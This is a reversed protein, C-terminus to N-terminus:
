FRALPHALIVHRSGSPNYGRQQLGVALGVVVGVVVAGVVSGVVPWFGKSKRFDRWGERSRMWLSRTPKKLPEPVKGDLRVGSFLLRVAPNVKEKPFDVSPKVTIPGKLLKKLRADYLYLTLVGQDHEARARALVVLDVKLRAALGLIGPGPTRRGMELLAREMLPLPDKKFRRLTITARQLKPPDVEVGMTTTRYGPMRATIYNTGKQVSKLTIPGRGQRHANLYVRAGPPDTTVEVTSTGFEDFMMREDDVLQAMQRPFTKPSYTTKPALVLMRRLTEKAEKVKGDLFYAAALARLARALPEAKQRIRVLAVFSYELLRVAKNFKEIAKGIELNTLDRQGAALLKDARLLRRVSGKPKELIAQIPRYRITKNKRLAARVAALTRKLVKLDTNQADIHLTVSPREAAKRVEPAPQARLDTGVTVGGLVASCCAMVM